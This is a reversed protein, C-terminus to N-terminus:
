LLQDAAEATLDRLTSAGEVYGEFLVLVLLMAGVQLYVPFEDSEGVGLADEDALGVEGWRAFDSDDASVRCALILLSSIFVLEKFPYLHDNRTTRPSPTPWEEQTTPCSTPTM